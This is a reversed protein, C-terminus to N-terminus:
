DKSKKGYDKPWNGSDTVRNMAGVKIHSGNIDDVSQKEREREILNENLGKLIVAKDVSAEFVPIENDNVIIVGADLEFKEKKDTNPIYMMEKYRNTDKFLSDKVSAFGLTDIIIDPVYKDVGYIEKYEEDLYSTDRSQTLVFEATDIFSVLEDFDDAYYGNVDKYAIESIRIDELKKLVPMYREKKIKEFEIPEQISNYILYGLFVIVVWLAIQIIGKVIM